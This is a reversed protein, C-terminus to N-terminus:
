VIILDILLTNYNLLVPAGPRTKLQSTQVFCHVGLIQAGRGDEMLNSVQYLIKKEPSRLVADVVQYINTSSFRVEKKKLLTYIYTHIYKYKIIVNTVLIWYTEATYKPM